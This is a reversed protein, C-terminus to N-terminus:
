RPMKGLITKIDGEIVEVSKGLGDIAGRTERRDRRLENELAAIQAQNTFIRRVLWVIGGLMATVAWATANSIIESFRDPLM